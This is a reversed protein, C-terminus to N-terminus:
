VIIFSAVSMCLIEWMMVFAFFIMVTAFNDVDAKQVRVAVEM